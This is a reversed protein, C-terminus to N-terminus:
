VEDGWADWGETKQRAFLEIKTMSPFSSSILQRFYEPKKSHRGKRERYVSSERHDSPPPSFKGKTGVLLLEHQGRFWYGMGIWGKDWIAQTKYTFGWAKMVELAELLKPATAWLYLVANNDAPIPLAKIEDLAMSPYHAEIKDANDKCFDYRWPPDAYIIQYKKNPFPIM